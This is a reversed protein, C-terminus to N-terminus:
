QSQYQGDQLKSVHAKVREMAPRMQPSLRDIESWDEQRGAAELSFCLDALADAGVTRASSKLKHTHFSVQGAERQGCAAEFEAVIVESQTVFKRLINLHAIADDGLVRTLAAPDIPSGDISPNPKADPPM